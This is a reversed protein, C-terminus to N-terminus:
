STREESPSWPISAGPMVLHSKLRGAGMGALVLTKAAGIAPQHDRGRGFEIARGIVGGQRALGSYSPSPCPLDGHCHALQRDRAM